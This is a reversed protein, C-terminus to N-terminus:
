NADLPIFTAREALGEARALSNANAVAQNHVDIGVVECGASKALRLAPGGSGCAVDLMRHVPELQLWEGFKMLETATLWSNQGLDEGFAECRVERYLDSTFHAYNADYHGVANRPGGHADPNSDHM